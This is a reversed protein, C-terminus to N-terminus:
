FYYSIGIRAGIGFWAMSVPEGRANVGPSNGADNRLEGIGEWRALVGLYVFLDEGLATNGQLELLAGPGKGTYTDKQTWCDVVLSGFHYGVGFGASVNYLGEDVLMYHLVVTPLHVQMTFEGPGFRPSLINYTNLQYAYEVKLMWDASLPLFTMVFFDPSAHFEPVRQSPGFGGNIWDVIDRSTLYDVGMGAACGPRSPQLAPPTDAAASVPMVGALVLLMRFLGKM